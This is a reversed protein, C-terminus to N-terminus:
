VIFLFCERGWSDLICTDAAKKWLLLRREPPRRGRSPLGDRVALFCYHPIVSKVAAKNQLGHFLPVARM